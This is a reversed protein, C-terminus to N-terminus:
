FPPPELESTQQEIVPKYEDGWGYNVHELESNKLRKSEKEYFLPVFLDQVGGDRDKCIEIVNTSNYLENDARWKLDMRTQNIFDQNVRHMIFANDVRNVIDNSGSVDNLRLFGQAKRPHAVFLIHVNCKKAFTELHEVFQSQRSYKDADLMNINISMLNDLIILDVKHEVVCKNLNEYIHEFNNGYDNNYIYVYENLWKSIKEDIGPMTAYFNEYQTEYVYGKGAGQLTLWKLTNKATLEGSFMAVKYGQQRTNLVLQSIISSKGCARMGSLCTVFGKKLGRMKKDIIEIGTKIFEEQPTELLRIEETTYFIPSGDIEEIQKKTEKIVYNQNKFNPLVYDKKNYADPEYLLRLEKWHNNSCSSHFCNFCIKGDSTQIISADKGTHASNFPCQKLIWKTGGNWNTKEAVDLGHKDIWEQLDFKQPNYNNYKHPKEEETPLINKVFDELYSMDNEKINKPAYIIKSMRHPRDETNSGKQAMTGYLKCVRAPNFTKLDVDIEDDAFLTNTALLVNKMLETTEKNINLSVKYLLHYGNGSLAVVPDNWGRDRFYAFIKQAKLYAKQIQENSSSVGSTRVPDLDIMIWEYGTIDGDSTTPSAKEILEDKQTRSYCGSSLCNLTIYINSHPRIRFTSLSKIFTDADKFYGSANWKGSIIRIEFTKEEDELYDPKLISIAKRIEAENIRAM